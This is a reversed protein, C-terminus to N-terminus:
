GRIVVGEKSEDKAYRDYFEQRTFVKLPQHRKRYAQGTFFECAYNQRFFETKLYQYVYSFRYDPHIAVNALYCINGGNLDWMDINPYEPHCIVWGFQKYDLRWSEVFGIIEGNHDLSTIIRNHDLLKQFMMHSREMNEGVHFTDYKHYFAALKDALMM